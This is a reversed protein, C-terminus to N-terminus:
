SGPSEELLPLVLPGRHSPSETGTEGPNGTPLQKLVDHGPLIVTLGIGPSCWTCGPSPAQPCPMEGAPKGAAWPVDAKVCPGEGREGWDSYGASGPLRAASDDSPRPAGRGSPSHGVQPPLEGLLNDSDRSDGQTPSPPHCRAWQESSSVPWLSFYRPKPHLRRLGLGVVHKPGSWTFQGSQSQLPGPGLWAVRWSCPRLKSITPNGHCGRSPNSIRDFSVACHRTCLFVPIRTEPDRAPAPLLFM